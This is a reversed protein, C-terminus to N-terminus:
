ADPQRLGSLLHQQHISVRLGAEGDAQAVRLRVLQGKGQGIRHATNEHVLRDFGALADQVVRLAHVQHRGVDLEGAHLYGQHIGHAALRNQPLIQVRHLSLIGMDEDVALGGQSHERDVRQGGGVPDYDGDLRLVQGGLAQFLLLAMLQDHAQTGARALFDPSVRAMYHTGHPSNPTDPARLEQLLRAAEAHIEEPTLPQLRLYDQRAQSLFLDVLGPHGDVVFDLNREGGFGDPNPPIDVTKAWAKNAPSFWGDWDKQQATNAMVYLTRTYGFQEIVQPVADRDLQNDRYHESLSAEIAEKCAINARRSARYLDLDGQERAYAVDHRYLPLERQADLAAEARQEISDRVVDMYSTERDSFEKYVDALPSSSALLAAARSQPLDLEEMAMLIDERVTYEYTHKLIEEPPQSKLWDRFKDQEAAMKEYLATNKDTNM